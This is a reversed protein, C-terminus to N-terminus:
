GRGRGGERRVPSVEEGVSTDLGRLGSGEMGSIRVQELMTAVGAQEVNGRAVQRTPSGGGWPCVSIAQPWWWSCWSRARPRWVATWKSEGASEPWAGPRDSEAEVPLGRTVDLVLSLVRSKEWSGLEWRRADSRGARGGEGDM